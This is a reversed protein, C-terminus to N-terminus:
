KKKYASLEFVINLSLGFSFRSSVKVAAQYHSSTSIEPTAEKGRTKSIYASYEREASERTALLSPHVAPRVGFGEVIENYVITSGPAGPHM